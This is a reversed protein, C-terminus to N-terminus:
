RGLTEKDIDSLFGTETTRSSSTGSSGGGGSRDELWWRVNRSQGLWSKVHTPDEGDAEVKARFEALRDLVYQRYQDPKLDSALLRRAIIMSESITAQLDHDQIQRSVWQSLDAEIAGRGDADEPEGPEAHPSSV